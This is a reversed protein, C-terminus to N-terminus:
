SKCFFVFAQARYSTSDPHSMSMIDDKKGLERQPTSNPAVTFKEPCTGALPYAKGDRRSKGGGGGGVVM